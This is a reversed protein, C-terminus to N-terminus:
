PSCDYPKAICCSILIMVMSVTHICNQPSCLGCIHFHPQTQSRHISAKWSFHILALQLGISTCVSEITFHLLPALHVSAAGVSVEGWFDKQQLYTLRPLLIHLDDLRPLGLKSFLMGRLHEKVTPRSWRPLASGIAPRDAVRLRGEQHTRLSEVGGTGRTLWFGKLLM